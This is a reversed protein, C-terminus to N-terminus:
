IFSQLRSLDSSLVESTNEAIQASALGAIREVEALSVAEASLSVRDGSDPADAERIDKDKQSPRGSQTINPVPGTSNISDVM